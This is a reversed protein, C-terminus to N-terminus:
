VLNDTFIGHLYSMSCLIGDQLVAFARIGSHEFGLKIYYKIVGLNRYFKSLRISYRKDFNNEILNSRIAILNDFVAM